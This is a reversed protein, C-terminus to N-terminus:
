KLRASDQPANIADWASGTWSVPTPIRCCASRRTNGRQKALRMTPLDDGTPPNDEGRCLHHHYNGRLDSAMSEACEPVVLHCQTGPRMHTKQPTTQSSVQAASVAGHDQPNWNKIRTEKTLHHATAQWSGTEPWSWNSCAGRGLVNGNSSHFIFSFAKGAATLTYKGRGWKILCIGLSYVRTCLDKQLHM